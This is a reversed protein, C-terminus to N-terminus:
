RVIPSRRGLLASGIRLHTAGHALAVAFDASMGASIAGAGPHSAQLQQSLEALRAFAPGPDAGLPAVAMVGALRLRDRTAVEDALGVLAPPAVGARQPDGDLSVQLFVEIDRDVREAGLQLAAALEPRDLSHVAHAYQAVSRAKNTQLQGVFHWRVPGSSVAQNLQDGEDALEALKASAEQDRSEGLDSVGLRLLTRVDAVPFGKTVAITVVSKPNRGLALCADSVQRRIIGLSTALAAQRLSESNSTV